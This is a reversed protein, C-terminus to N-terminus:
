GDPSERRRRERYRVTLPISQFGFAARLQNVVFRRYSEALADPASCMAVFIPPSSEAQTVYLLRPAKGSKTPPPHRELVESFFRNLESTGVRRTFEAYSQDVQKMLAGVGRGSKASLPVVPIWPAFHLATQVQEQAATLEKKSLLDVKNLGVILARKRNEALGILRADQDTLGVTADCMVVVIDSRNITRLARMVSALEIAETVKSRRRVGATDVVLYPKGGYQLKVDIPDRTTGPRSDVLSRESGSLHNLLSSKGANPKGLLAIRPGISTDAPKNEHIAPLQEALAAELAAMNRGHLASGAVLNPLGLRYLDSADLERGPNDARNAMYVVPKDSKRLLAIAERDADTPPTLADLVCVVVDAEEIAARVHRAIGQRMPDEDQPDFGGTDVLMVDRGQLHAETYNRDRTVGPMDHVIALRKGALRNFLTSKGVNPRGVLAVIPIV